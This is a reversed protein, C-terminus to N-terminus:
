SSQSQGRAQYERWGQCILNPVRAIPQRHREKKVHQYYLILFAVHYHACFRKCIQDDSQETMRKSSRSEGGVHYNGHTGEQFSPDPDISRMTPHVQQCDHDSTQFAGDESGDRESPDRYYDPSIPLSASPDPYPCTTEELSADDALIVPDIPIGDPADPLRSFEELSDESCSISPPSLDDEAKDAWFTPPETSVSSSDRPDCPPSSDPAPIHPVLNCPSAAGHGPIELYTRPESDATPREQPQIQSNSVTCPQNNASVYVCVEAPPRPPLHHKPLPLTSLPSGHCPKPYPPKPHKPSCTNCTKQPPFPKRLHSGM